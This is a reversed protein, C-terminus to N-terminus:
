GFALDRDLDRSHGPGMGPDVAVAPVAMQDVKPADVAGEHVALAGDAVDELVPVLAADAGDLEDEATAYIAARHRRMRVPGIARGPGAVRATGQDIGRNGSLRGRFAGIGSDQAFRAPRDPPDETPVHSGEPDHALDCFTSHAGNESGVLLAMVTRDRQFNELRLERRLGRGYPPEKAFRSGGGAKGMRVDNREVIGPLDLSAVIDGHLVDVTGRYSLDKLGRSESIDRTDELDRSLHRLGESMGGTTLHDM